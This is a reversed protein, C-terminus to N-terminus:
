IVGLAMTHSRSVTGWTLPIPGLPNGEQVADSAEGGSAMAAPAGQNHWGCPHCRRADNCRPTGVFKLFGLLKTPGCTRAVLATEHGCILRDRAEGGLRIRARRSTRAVSDLFNLPAPPRHQICPPIDCLAGFPFLILGARKAVCATRQRTAPYGANKTNNWRPLGQRSPYGPLGWCIVGAFVTVSVPM